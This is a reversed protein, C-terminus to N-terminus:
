QQALTILSSEPVVPWLSGLMGSFGYAELRQRFLTMMLVPSWLRRCYPQIQSVIARM